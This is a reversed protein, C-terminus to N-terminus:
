SDGKPFAEDMYQEATITEAQLVSVNGVKDFEYTIALIDDPKAKAFVEEALPYIKIFKSRLRNFNNINTIDVKILPKPNYPKPKIFKAIEMLDKYDFDFDPSFQIYDGEKTAIRFQVGAYIKNGKITIKLEKTM